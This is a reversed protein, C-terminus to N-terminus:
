PAVFGACSVGMIICAPRHKDSSWGCRRCLSGALATGIAHAVSTTFVTSM